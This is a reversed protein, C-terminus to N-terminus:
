SAFTHKRRGKPADHWGESLNVSPCQQIGQRQGCTASSFISLGDGLEVSVRLSPRAAWGAAGLNAGMKLATGNQNGTRPMRISGSKKVSANFVPMIGNMCPPHAFIHFRGTCIPCAGPRGPAPQGAGGDGWRCCDSPPNSFPSQSRPLPLSHLLAGCLSSQKVENKSACCAGACARCHRVLNRSPAARRCHRARSRTFAHGV